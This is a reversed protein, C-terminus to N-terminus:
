NLNGIINVKKAVDFLPKPYNTYLEIMITKYITNAMTRSIKGFTPKLTEYAKWELEEHWNNYWNCIATNAMLSQLQIGFENSWKECWRM